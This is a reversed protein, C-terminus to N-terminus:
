KPPPGNLETKSVGAEKDEPVLSPLKLMKMVAPNYVMLAAGSGGGESVGGAPSFFYRYDTIRVVACEKIGPIIYEVAIRAADGPGVIFVYNSSLKGALQRRYEAPINLKEIDKRSASPLSGNQPRGNMFLDTKIGVTKPVLFIRLQDEAQLLYSVVVQEGSAGIYNDLVPDNPSGSLNQVAIFNLPGYGQLNEQRVFAVDPPHRYDNSTKKGSPTMNTLGISFSPVRFSRGASIHERVDGLGVAAKVSQDAESINAVAIHIVQEKYWANFLITPSSNDQASPKTRGAAAVLSFCSLIATLIVAGLFINRGGM